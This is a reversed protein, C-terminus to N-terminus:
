RIRMQRKIDSKYKRARLILERHKTKNAKDLFGEFYGLAMPLNHKKVYYAFGLIFLSQIFKPNRKLYDENYAIIQDVIDDEGDYHYNAIEDYIKLATDFRNLYMNLFSTSYRWTGDEGSMKSAEEATELAKLPNKDGELEIIAKLLLPSPNTPKKLITNL